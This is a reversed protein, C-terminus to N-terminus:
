EVSDCVRRGIRAQGVPLYRVVLAYTPCAESVLDAAPHVSTILCSELGVNPTRNEDGSPTSSISPKLTSVPQRLQVFDLPNPFGQSASDDPAAPEVPFRTPDDM